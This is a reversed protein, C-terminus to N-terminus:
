TLNRSLRVRRRPALDRLRESLDSSAARPRGLARRLDQHYSPGTTHCTPCSTMQTAAEGDCWQCLYPKLPADELDALKDTVASGVALGAEIAAALRAVTEAQVGRDQDDLLVVAMQEGIPANTELLYGVAAAAADRRRVDEHTSWTIALEDPSEATVLALWTGQARWIRTMSPLAALVAEHAHRKCPATSLAKMLSPLCQYPVQPFIGVLADVTPECAEIHEWHSLPRASADDRLLDDADPDHESDNLVQQAQAAIAAADFDGLVVAIRMWERLVEARHEVWRPLWWESRMTTWLDALEDLRRRESFALPRGDALGAALTLATRTAQEFDGFGGWDIPDVEPTAIADRALDKHGAERFARRLRM